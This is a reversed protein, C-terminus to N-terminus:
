LSTSSCPKAEIVKKPFFDSVSWIFNTLGYALPPMVRQTALLLFKNIIILFRMPDRVIAQRAKLSRLSHGRSGGEFWKWAVERSRFLM